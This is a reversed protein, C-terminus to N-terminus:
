AVVLQDGTRTSDCGPVRSVLQRYHRSRLTAALAVIRPDDLAREAVCLEYAERHLALFGLGADSATARICVGAEAWGHSVADAVARHGRAIQDYGRPPRNRGLLRDFTDRAASGEERNVWRVDARMLSRVTKEPRGRGVAVGMDWQLQHLLVHGAGLRTRVVAENADGGQRDTLHLGAVHVLGRGLLQLADASSRLLPIVRIGHQEAMEQALLGVLPDCGAIVLTREPRVTGVLELRDDVTAADHPLVGVATPEVPFALLRGDVTARWVRPDDAAERPWAWPVDPATQTGGFVTEVSEGLAAALRLAVAVSPVLRGNEIASIETRSVGSQSALYAQSWGMRQRYQGLLPPSSLIM